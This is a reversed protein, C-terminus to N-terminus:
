IFLNLSHLWPDIFTSEATGDTGQVKSIGPDCIHGPKFQILEYRYERSHVLRARFQFASDYLLALQLETMRGFKRCNQFNPSSRLSWLFDENLHQIRAISRSSDCSYVLHSRVFDFLRARLELQHSIEQGAVYTPSEKALQMAAQQIAYEMAAMGNALEKACEEFSMQPEPVIILGLTSAAEHKREVASIGNQIADDRYATARDRKVQKQVRNQLKEEQRCTNATIRINALTRLPAVQDRM